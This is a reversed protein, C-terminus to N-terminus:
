ISFPFPDSVNPPNNFGVTFPEACEPKVFLFNVTLFDIQDRIVDSVSRRALKCLQRIRDARNQDVRIQIVRDYM